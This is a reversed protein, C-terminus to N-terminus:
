RFNPDNFIEDCEAMIAADISDQAMPAILLPKTAGTSKNNIFSRKFHNMALKVGRASISRLDSDLFQGFSPPSNTIEYSPFYECNDYARYIEDSIARLIAKSATNAILVHNSTFTAALAVPSVTFIWKMKPNISKIYHICWSLDELVQRYTFNIFSHETPDFTGLKTGPCIPFVIESRTQHWAETLGLTFIFYDGELFIQKVCDLHFARDCELDHVSEYGELQVGPRLLDVWGIATNEVICVRDRLLFAFEILQRLQRVTYINGYRASYVGYQLATARENTIQPPANETIFHQLGLSSLNRAIHQAFCSGATAIKSDYEIEFKTNDKFNIESYIKDSVGTKWFNDLPLKKYPHM